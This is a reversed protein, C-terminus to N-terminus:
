SSPFPSCGGAASVSRGKACQYKPTFLGGRQKLAGHAELDAVDAKLRQVLSDIPQGSEVSLTLTFLTLPSLGLTDSIATLKDVTPSSLGQELKSMYGRSSAEAMQKHTLGRSIRLTKLVNAFGTKLSM